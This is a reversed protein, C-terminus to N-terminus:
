YRFLEVAFRYRDDRMEVIQKHCLSQWAARPEVGYFHFDEGSALGPKRQERLSPQNRYLWAFLRAAYEPPEFILKANGM